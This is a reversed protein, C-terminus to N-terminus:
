NVTLTIMKSVFYEKGKHSFYCDGILIKDDKVANKLTEHAEDSLYDDKIVFTKLSKDRGLYVVTFMQVPCSDGRFSIIVQSSLYFILDERIILTDSKINSFFIFTEDNPAIRLTDVTFQAVAAGAISVALGYQALSKINDPIDASMLLTMCVAGLVGMIVQFRRWFSPVAMIARKMWVSPNFISDTQKM